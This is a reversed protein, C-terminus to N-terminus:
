QRHCERSASHLHCFFVNPCLFICFLENIRVQRPHKNEILLFIKLIKVSPLRPPPLLALVRNLSQRLHLPKPIIVPRIPASFRSDWDWYFGCETAAADEAAIMIWVCGPSQSMIMTHKLLMLRLILAWHSRPSSISKLSSARSSPSSSLDSLRSLLLELPSLSDPTLLPPTLDTVLRSLRPTLWTLLQGSDDDDDMTM